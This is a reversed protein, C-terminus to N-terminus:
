KQLSLHHYAAWHGLTLSTYSIFFYSLFCIEETFESSTQSALSGSKIQGETKGSGDQHEAEAQEKVLSDSVAAAVTPGLHIVQFNSHSQQPHYWVSVSFIATSLRM